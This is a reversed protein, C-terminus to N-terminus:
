EWEDATGVFHQVLIHEKENETAWSLIRRFNSTFKKNRKRSIGVWDM